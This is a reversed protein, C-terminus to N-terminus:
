GVDLVSDKMKLQRMVDNGENETKLWIVLKANEDTKEYVSITRRKEAKFLQMPQIRRKSYKICGFMKKSTQSM